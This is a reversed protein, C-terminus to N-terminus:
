SATKISHFKYDPEPIRTFTIGTVPMVHAELAEIIERAAVPDLDFFAPPAIAAHAGSEAYAVDVARRYHQGFWGGEHVEATLRYRLQHVAEFGRDGIDDYNAIIHVQRHVLYAYARLAAGAAV